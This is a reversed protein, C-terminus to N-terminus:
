LGSRTGEIAQWVCVPTKKLCGTYLCMFPLWNTLAEILKVWYLSTDSLYALWCAYPFGEVKSLLLILPLILAFVCFLTSHLLRTAALSLLEVILRPCM